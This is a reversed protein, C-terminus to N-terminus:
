DTHNTQRPDGEDNKYELGISGIATVQIVYEGSRAWHFHWTDGLLVIVSCPLYARFIPSFYAFNLMTATLLRFYIGPL